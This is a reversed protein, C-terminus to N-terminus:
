QVVVLVIYLRCEVILGHFKFYEYVRWEGMYQWPQTVEQHKPVMEEEKMKVLQKQKM